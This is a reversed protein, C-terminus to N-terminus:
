TKYHTSTSNRPPIYMNAITIINLTILTYRSWKFNPTTHISPRLYTQQQSQLTIELSHLSGVEQWICCGPVCPPLTIYKPHTQKPTLKTEQIKIIDAHTDHILLKLEEIKNNCVTILFIM